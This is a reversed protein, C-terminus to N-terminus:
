GMKFTPPVEYKAQIEEELQSIEATAREIMQSSDLTVGGPLAIGQFKSLNQGWQLLILATTYKKVWRDNYVRGYTEADVVQKAWLVVYAGVTMQTSDIDFHVQGIHRNFRIPITNNGFMNEILDIYQTNLYYSTLSLDSSTGSNGATSSDANIAGGGYGTAYFASNFSLAASPDNFPYFSNSLRTFPLAQEVFIINPPVTVYGNDVDAQQLEISLFVRETGAYHYDQFIELCDDVKDDLQEESVNVEIVPDGLRRLCYDVLEARTSVTAM